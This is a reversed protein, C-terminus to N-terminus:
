VWCVFSRLKKRNCICTVLYWFISFNVLNIIYCFYFSFSLNGDILMSTVQIKANEHCVLYFDTLFQDWQHEWVHQNEQDVDHHTHKVVYEKCRLLSFEIVSRRAQSLFTAMWTNITIIIVLDEYQFFVMKQFSYLFLSVQIRPGESGGEVGAVGHKKYEMCFWQLISICSTVRYDEVFNQREEENSM